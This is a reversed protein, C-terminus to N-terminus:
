RAAWRRRLYMPGYRSLLGRQLLSEIRTIVNAEDSGVHAAMEAYRRECVPFAGQLTNILARDLEDM